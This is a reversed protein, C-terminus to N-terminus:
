KEEEYQVLSGYLEDLDNKENNVKELLYKSISEDETNYSFERTKEDIGKDSQMAALHFKHYDLSAGM